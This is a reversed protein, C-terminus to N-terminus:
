RSTGVQIFGFIESLNTVVLDLANDTAKPSITVTDVSVAANNAKDNSIVRFHYVKSPQLGSIVVIHNLSLKKDEQTKQSYTTGTGEGYEIQSTAPEDTNWSIVLQAVSESQGPPVSVSGEVRIDSILAPRTDTATTVSQPESQAENGAKDRGRVVLTYPTQPLLGRIFIRHEGKVLAVNVEDRADSPSGTPYFTVISSTETNTVWSVLITPQAANRVQQIKISGIRPRPLTEFTLTNGEYEKGESDLGNIKYYYKTGDALGELIVSYNAESTSTSVEKLGGFGTSTGYYIKAKSAGSITFNLTATTLSTGSIKPDTVKPAPLTKFSIEDSEGLNGDEDSWKARFYYTTGSTLNSLDIEHSETQTSNSPEEDFYDGAGTGYQVRSDSERDTAWSITAKSTTIDSVTPKSSLGAPETFSGKPTLTVANAYSPAAKSASTTDYAGVRWFYQQSSDLTDVYATGTTKAIEEWTEGDDSREIVYTIAGAGKYAPM